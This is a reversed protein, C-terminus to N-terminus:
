MDKEAEKEAVLKISLGIEDYIIGDKVDDVVSKSMFNIGWRTRDVKFLNSSATFSDDDMSVNAKFSLQATEGKITLNGSIRHTATSDNPLAETSVLEFLATPYETTNFFDDERGEATGLLHQTLDNKKDGELDLVEISTMDMVFSGSEIGGENVTFTGKQIQVTGNHTGTPKYGEWNIVSNDTNVSYVSAMETAEAADGADSIEAKEGSNDGCAILGFLLLTLPMLYKM